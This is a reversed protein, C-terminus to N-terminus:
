QYCPQLLENTAHNSLYDSGVFQKVLTMDAMAVPM